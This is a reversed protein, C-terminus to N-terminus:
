WWGALAEMYGVRGQCGRRKAIDLRARGLLGGLLALLRNDVEPIQRVHLAECVGLHKSSTAGRGQVWVDLDFIFDTSHRDSVYDFHHSGQEGLDGSRVVQLVIGHLSVRGM